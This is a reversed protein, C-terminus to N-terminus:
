QTKVNLLGSLSTQNIKAADEALDSALSFYNDLTQKSIEHFNEIVLIINMLAQLRQLCMEIQEQNKIQHNIFVAFDAVSNTAM